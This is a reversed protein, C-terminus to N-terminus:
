LLLMFRENQLLLIEIYLHLILQLHIQYPRYFAKLFNRHFDFGKFARERINLIILRRNLFILPVLLKLVRLRLLAWLHLLNLICPFLRRDEKLFSAIARHRGRRPMRERERIPLVFPESLLWYENWLIELAVKWILRLVSTCRDRIPKSVFIIVIDLHYALSRRVWYFRQTLHM